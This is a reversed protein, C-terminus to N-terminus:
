KCLEERAAKEQEMPDFWTEEIQGHEMVKTIGEQLSVEPKYGLIKRAKSIDPIRKDIEKDENRDAQSLSIFKPEVDKRTISIIKSALERITIPETANGINFIQSDTGGNLLASVIGKVADEVYCFSRIQEGQGYVLPPKNQMVAKIFRPVVFEAVQRPGYVNFLRIISYRLGYNSHFANVYEEGVLKSVAYTSLPNVLAEESIPFVMQRGYVESSSVFVIKKVKEKICAELINITGQVNINLTEMRKIQTRRVGLMAALHICYDCGRVAQNVDNIDLISGTLKEVGEISPKVLDLIRVQLGEGKLHIAAPIGIFGAGGTILVRAM